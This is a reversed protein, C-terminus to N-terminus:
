AMKALFVFNQPKKGENEPDKIPKKAAFYGFHLKQLRLKCFRM